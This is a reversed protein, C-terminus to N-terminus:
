KKIIIAQGRTFVDSNSVIHDFASDSNPTVLNWITHIKLLATKKDKFLYGTWSTITGYPGFRVSFAVAIVHDKAPPLDNVWGTLPFTKGSELTCTGTIQGSSVNVYTIRLTSNLDNHWFGYLDSITQGFLNVTSLLFALLLSSSLILKKM